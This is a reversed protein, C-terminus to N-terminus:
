GYIYAQRQALRRVSETHSNRITQRETSNGSPSFIHQNPNASSISVDPDRAAGLASEAVAISHALEAISSAYILSTIEEKEKRQFGRGVRQAQEFLDAPVGDPSMPYGRLELEFISVTEFDNLLRALRIAKMAINALPLKSLELDELIISSLELAEALAPASPAITNETASM